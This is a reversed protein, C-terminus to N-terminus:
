STEKNLPKSDKNKAFVPVFSDSFKNTMEHFPSAHNTKSDFLRIPNSGMHEISVQLLRLLLDENIEEAQKRYGEYAMASAYKYAYDERIRVLHGLKKASSWAIWILPAVVTFRSFFKIYDFENTGIGSDILLYFSIGAILLLTGNMVYESNRIPNDLEEKRKKFSGAMSARNADEIIKQIEEQQEKAISSHNDLLKQQAESNIQVKKLNDSLEKFNKLNDTYTANQEQITKTISEIEKTWTETNESNTQVKSNYTTSSKYLEDISESIKKSQELYSSISEINSDSELYAQRINKQLESFEDTLISLEELQRKSEIIDSEVRISNEVVLLYTQKIYHKIESIRNLFDDFRENANESQIYDNLFVNAKKILNVLNRKLLVVEFTEKKKELEDLLNYSEQLSLIIGKRSIGAYGFLDNENPLKSEISKVLRTVASKINKM